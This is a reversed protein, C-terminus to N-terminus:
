GTPLLRSGPAGAATLLFRCVRAFVEDTVLPARDAPHFRVEEFRGFRDGPVPYNITFDKEWRSVRVKNGAKEFEVAEGVKMSALVQPGTAGQKIVVM